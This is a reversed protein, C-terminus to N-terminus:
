ERIRDVVRMVVGSRELVRREWVWFVLAFGLMQATVESTGLLMDTLPGPSLLDTVLNGM